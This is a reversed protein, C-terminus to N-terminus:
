AQTCVRKVYTFFVSLNTLNESAILAGLGLILLADKKGPEYLVTELQVSQRALMSSLAAVHRSSQDPIQDFNYKWVQRENKEAQESGEFLKQFRVMECHEMYPGITIAIVRNKKFFSFFVFINFKKCYM